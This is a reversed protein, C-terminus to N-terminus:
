AVVLSRSNTRDWYGDLGIERTMAAFRPDSRDAAISRAFLTVTHREGGFSTYARNFYQDPVKFGRDFFFANLLRFSQDVDGVFATFVAGGLLYGKGSEATAVIADIAERILKPDSAILAESQQITLRM